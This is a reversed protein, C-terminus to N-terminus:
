SIAVESICVKQTGTTVIGQFAENTTVTYTEGPGLEYKSTTAAGNNIFVPATNTSLAKIFAYLRNSNVALLPTTANSVTIQDPITTVGEAGSSSSSVPIGEFTSGDPYEASICMAILADITAKANKYSPRSM